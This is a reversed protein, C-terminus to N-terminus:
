PLLSQALEPDTIYVKPREFGLVFTTKIPVAEVVWSRVERGDADATADRPEDNGIQYDASMDSESLQQYGPTTVSVTANQIAASNNYVTVQLVNSDLDGQPSLDDIRFTDPKVEVIVEDKSRVTYKLACSTRAPVNGLSWFLTPLKGPMWRGVVPDGEPAKSIGILRGHVPELATLLRYDALVRSDTMILCCGNAPRAHQGSEENTITLLYDITEGFTWSTASLTSSRQVVRTHKLVGITPPHQILPEATPAAYWESKRTALNNGREKSDMAGYALWNSVAVWNEKDKIELAHFGLKEAVSGLYLDFAVRVDRSWALAKQAAASYVAAAAGIIVLAWLAQLPQQLVVQVVVVEFAVVILLVILSALFTLAEQNERMRSHLDPDEAKLVLDMIPLLTAQHAGYQHYTYDAVSLLINGLRTPALSDDKRPFEFALIYAARAPSVRTFPPGDTVGRSKKQLSQFRQRQRRSLIAGVIPSRTFSEGSVMNLFFSGLSNILYGLALLALIGLAIQWATSLATIALALGVRHTVLTPYILVINLTTFTAAAVLSHPQVLKKFADSLTGTLQDTISSLVPLHSFAM